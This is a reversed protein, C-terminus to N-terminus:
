SRTQSTSERAAAYVAALLAIHVWLYPRLMNQNFQLIAWGFVLSRLLARLLTAYFPTANAALKLPRHITAFLFCLFPIIGIIGSAALAEAFVNMGEFNKSAEFSKITEGHLAAIGSSVGGLSEGILPHQRFVILTDNLADERQVVSHAAADSIGTGNLFMLAVAPSSDLLRVSWVGIFVVLGIFLSSPLLARVTTWAIRGHALDRCLWLWPRIQSLLVDLFVFVIGMRSSSIIIGIATLCYIVLLARPPLLSSKGRRLSGVFVFGVLLYTAFYSPEYSFGNVRPLRDQVWWQTVLPAGFGLIPSAFQVMGFVAIVGFSLIYLRLITALTRSNNGFLQVFSFMMALNLLLWLCYGFSKPWFNSAPIFLVQVALWVCLSSAGLTPVETGRAVRILALILLIPVVLQCLRFNGGAKIILFLDFSSTLFILSAM